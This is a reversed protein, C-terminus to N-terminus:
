KGHEYFGKGSKQGLNGEAVLKEMGQHVYFRDGYAERMDRAVAVTTDIGTMDTLRFPGMPALGNAQVYEDIEEVSVGSEEQYRWMESALSTLIRNVVFGPCEACRIPMKKIAQAFNM